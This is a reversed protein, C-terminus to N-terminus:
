RRVVERAGRGAVEDERDLGDVVVRGSGRRELRGLRHHEGRPGARVSVRAAAGREIASATAAWGPEFTAIM